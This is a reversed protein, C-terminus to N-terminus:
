KFYNECLSDWITQWKVSVIHRLKIGRKQNITMNKKNNSFIVKHTELLISFIFSEKSISSEIIWFYLAFYIMYNGKKLRTCLESRCPSRFYLANTLPFNCDRKPLLVRPWYFQNIFPGNRVCWETHLWWKEFINCSSAPHSHILISFAYFLFYLIKIHFKSAIIKFYSTINLCNQQVKDFYLQTIESILTCLRVSM